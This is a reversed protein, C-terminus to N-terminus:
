SANKLTGIIGNERSRSQENRALSLTFSVFCSRRVFKISKSLWVKPGNFFLSQRDPKQARARLVVGRALLNIFRTCKHGPYIIGQRSSRFLSSSSWFQFHKRQRFTKRRMGLSAGETHGIWIDVLPKGRFFLKRQMWQGRGEKGSLGWKTDSDAAAGM